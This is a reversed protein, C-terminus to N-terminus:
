HAVHRAGHTGSIAAEYVELWARAVVKPRANQYVWRRGSEGLRPGLLPYEVLRLLGEALAEVGGPQVLLGTTGDDILEQAGLNAASVVPLGCAMAEAVAQGWSESRSMTVFVDGEALHKHFAERPQRGEFRVREGLGCRRVLSELVPQEPGAGFIALTADTGTAVLRALASVVQDVAKRQILPGACVIRLTGRDGRWQKRAINDVAVPPPILTVRGPTVGRAVILDRAVRGVAVIQSAQRLTATSCARIAPMLPHVASELLRDVRMTASLSSVDGISVVADDPGVWGQPVQVPGLVLPLDSLFYPLLSFTRDLAFPLAHHIVDADRWLRNRATQRLIKFPLWLGGLAPVKRGGVPIVTIRPSAFGGGDEPLCIVDLDDRMEVMTAVLDSIWGGESGSDPFLQSAAPAMLVKVASEDEHFDVLNCDVDM